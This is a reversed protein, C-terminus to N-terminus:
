VLLMSGTASAASSAPKSLMCVSAASHLQPQVQGQRRVALMTCVPAALAQWYMSSRRAVARLMRLWHSQMRVHQFPQGTFWFRQVAAEEANTCVASTGTVDSYHGYTAQWAVMCPTKSALALEHCGLM